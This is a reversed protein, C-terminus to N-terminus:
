AIASEGCGIDMDSKTMREHENIELIKVQRERQTRDGEGSRHGPSAETEICLKERERFVLSAVEPSRIRIKGVFHAYLVRTYM